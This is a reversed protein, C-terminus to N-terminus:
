AAKKSDLEETFFVIIDGINKDSYEPIDSFSVKLSKEFCFFVSLYDAESQFIENLPIEDVPLYDNSDGKRYLKPEFDINLEALIAEKLFLKLNEVRKEGSTESIALALKKLNENKMM